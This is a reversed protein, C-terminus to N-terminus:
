ATVSNHLSTRTTTYSGFRTAAVDINQPLVLIKLTGLRHPSSKAKFPWHFPKILTSAGDENKRSILEYRQEKGGPSNTRSVDALLSVLDM